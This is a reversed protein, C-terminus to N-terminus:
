PVMDQFAQITRAWLAKTARILVGVREMGLGAGLLVALPLWVLIVVLSLWSWDLQLTRRANPTEAYLWRILATFAMGAAVYGGTLGVKTWLNM